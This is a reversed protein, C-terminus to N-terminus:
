GGVGCIAVDEEVCRDGFHGRLPPSPAWGSKGLFSRAL